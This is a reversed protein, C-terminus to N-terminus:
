DHVHRDETCKFFHMNDLVLLSQLTAKRRGRISRQTCRSM